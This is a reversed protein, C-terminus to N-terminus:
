ILSVFAGMSCKRVVEQTGSVFFFRGHTDVPTGDYLRRLVTARPPIFFLLLSRVACHLALPPPHLGVVVCYFFCRLVRRVVCTSPAYSPSVAFTLGVFLFLPVLRANLHQEQSIGCPWRCSASRSSAM